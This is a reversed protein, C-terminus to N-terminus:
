AFASKKGFQIDQLMLQRYRQIMQHVSELLVNFDYPKELALTFADELARAPQLLSGSVIIVPLTPNIEERIRRLLELGNMEPMMVDTIVLELPQSKLVELAQRGNEASITEYGSLRLIEVTVSRMLPEDDAILIRTASQQASKHSENM